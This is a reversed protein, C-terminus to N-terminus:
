PERECCVLTSITFCQCIGRFSAHRPLAPPTPSNSHVRKGALLITGSMIAIRQLFPSNKTVAPATTIKFNPALSCLSSGLLRSTSATRASVRFSMHAAAIKQLAALRKQPTPWCHGDCYGYATSFAGKALFLILLICRFFVKCIATHIQPEIEFFGICRLYVSPKAGFIRDTRQGM